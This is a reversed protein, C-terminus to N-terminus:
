GYVELELTDVPVSIPTRAIDFMLEWVRLTPGYKPPEDNNYRKHLFAYSNRTIKCSPFKDSPYRDEDLITDVLDYGHIYAMAKISYWQASTLQWCFGYERVDEGRLEAIKKALVYALALDLGGMYSVYSTRSHMSFVGRQDGEAPRFNFGLICQGWTYNDKRGGHHKVVGHVRSTMGCVTGRRSLNRPMKACQEIWLPLLEYDLYDRQLKKFRGATLWLDLGVDFDFEMSKCMMVNDNRGTTAGAAWDLEKAEAFLLSDCAKHWLSTLTDTKFLIPAM